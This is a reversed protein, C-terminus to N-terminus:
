DWKIELRYRFYCGAVSIERVALLAEIHHQGMAVRHLKLAVLRSM